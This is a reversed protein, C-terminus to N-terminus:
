GAVVEGDPDLEMEHLLLRAGGAPGGIELVVPGGAPELTVRFRLFACCRSELRVLELVAAVTAEAAAFRLEFVEWGAEPTCAPVAERALAAAGGALALAAPVAERALAAPVVERALAAAGVERALAAAGVERALAAPVGERALAAAGGALALAAAGGALSRLGLVQERVQRLLGDRRRRLEPASLTCVIPTEM